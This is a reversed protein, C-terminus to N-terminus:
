LPTLHCNQLYSGNRANKEFTAVFSTPAKMCRGDAHRYFPSPSALAERYLADYPAFPVAQVMGGLPGMMIGRAEPLQCESLLMDGSIPSMLELRPIVLPMPHDRVIVDLLANIPGRALLLANSPLKSHVKVAIYDLRGDPGNFLGYYVANRGGAHLYIWLPNEEPNVFLSHNGREKLAAIATGALLSHDSVFARVEWMRLTPEKELQKIEEVKDPRVFVTLAGPTPKSPFISMVVDNSAGDM